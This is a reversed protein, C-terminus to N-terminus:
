SRAASRSSTASAAPWDVGPTIDREFPDQSIDVRRCDYAADDGSATFYSIGAAFAAALEREEAAM